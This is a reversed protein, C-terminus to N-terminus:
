SLTPSHILKASTKRKCIQEIAPWDCALQPNWNLQLDNWHMEFRGAFRWRNAFMKCASQFHANLHKNKKEIKIFHHLLLRLNLWPGTTWLLLECFNACFNQRKRFDNQRKRFTEISRYHLLIRTLHRIENPLHRSAIQIKKCFDFFKLRWESSAPCNSHLFVSSGPLSRM